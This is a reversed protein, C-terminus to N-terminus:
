HVLFFNYFSNGTFTLMGLGYILLLLWGWIRASLREELCLKVFCGVPVLHGIIISMFSGLLEWVIDVSKVMSALAGSTWFFAVAVIVRGRWSDEGAEVVMDSNNSSANSVDMEGNPFTNGSEDDILLCQALDCEEESKRRSCLNCRENWFRLIIDRPPIVLLPFALTLKLGLCARGITMLVDDDGFDLLINGSVVGGTCNGHVSGFLGMVLYIVSAVGVTSRNMYSVNREGGERLEEVVPLVNFHCIYSTIIVPCYLLFDGVSAPFFTIHSGLSARAEKSSVHCEISRYTVILTLVSISIIALFSFNKLATYTRLTCLPTALLIVLMMLLNSTVSMSSSGETSGIDTGTITAGGSGDLLDSLPKIIDRILVAYATAGFFCYPSVLLIGIYKGIGGFATSAM